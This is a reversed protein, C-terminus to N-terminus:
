DKATPSKFLTLLFLPISLNILSSGILHQTEYRWQISELDHHLNTLEDLDRYKRGVLLFQHTKTDTYKMGDLRVNHFGQYTLEKASALSPLLLLLPWFRKM